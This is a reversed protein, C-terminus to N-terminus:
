LDYCAYDIFHNRSDQLSNLTAFAQFALSIPQIIRFETEAWISVEGVSMVANRRDFNLSLAVIPKQRLGSELEKSCRLTFQACGTYKGPRHYLDLYVTGLHGRTDSFAEFKEQGPAWAESCCVIQILGASGM